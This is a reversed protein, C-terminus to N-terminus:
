VLLQGAFVCISSLTTPIQGPDVIILNSIIHPHSQIMPNVWIQGIKNNILAIKMFSIRIIYSMDDMFQATLSPGLGTRHIVLGRCSKAM